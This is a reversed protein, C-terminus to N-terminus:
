KYDHIIRNLINKQEDSSEIYDMVINAEHPENVSPLSTNIPVSKLRFNNEIIRM